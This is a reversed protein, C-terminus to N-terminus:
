CAFIVNLLLSFLNKGELDPLFAPADFEPVDKLEPMYLFSEKEPQKLQERQAISLPADGLATANEDEEGADRYRSPVHGEGSLPDKLLYNEYRM